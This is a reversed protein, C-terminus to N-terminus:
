KKGCSGGDEGGDGCNCGGSKFIKRYLIYTAGAGVLLLIFTEVVLEKRM